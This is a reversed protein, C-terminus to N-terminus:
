TTKGRTMYVKAVAGITKAMEDLADGLSSVAGAAVNFEDRLLFVERDTLKEADPVISPARIMGNITALHHSAEWLDYEVRRIIQKIKKIKEFDPVDSM